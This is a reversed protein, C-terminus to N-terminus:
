KQSADYVAFKWRASDGPELKRAGFGAKGQEGNVWYLWNKKGSGGGQNKVDDIQALFATAGGGTSEFKIGHPSAAAQKTADLVTMGQQWPLLFHKEVGDGYEVILKITPAAAPEAAFTGRVCAGGLCSLATAAAFALFGRRTLHGQPM